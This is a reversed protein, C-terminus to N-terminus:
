PIFYLLQFFVNQPMSKTREEEWGGERTKKRREEEKGKRKEEGKEKRERGKKEWSQQPIISLNLQFIGLTCCLSKTYMYVTFPNGGDLYNM